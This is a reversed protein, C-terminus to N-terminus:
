DPWRLYSRGAAGTGFQLHVTGPMGRVTFSAKGYEAAEKAVEM